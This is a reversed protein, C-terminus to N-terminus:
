DNDFMHITAIGNADATIKFTAYSGMREKMECNNTTFGTLSYTGSLYAISGCVVNSITMPAVITAGVTVDGSSDYQGNEFTMFIYSRIMNNDSTINVTCTEVSAGGGGAAKGDLTTNLTEVKTEIETIISNLDESPINDVLPTIEELNANQPVTVGKAKLRSILDQKAGQIRGIETAIAM